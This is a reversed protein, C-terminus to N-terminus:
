NESALRNAAAQVKLLMARFDRWRRRHLQRDNMGDARFFPFLGAFESDTPDMFKGPRVRLSDLSVVKFKEQNALLGEGTAVLSNEVDYSAGRILVLEGRSNKIDQLALMSKDGHYKVAGVVGHGNLVVFMVQGVAHHSNDGILLSRLWSQAHFRECEYCFDTYNMLEDRYVRVISDSTAVNKLVRKDIWDDLILSERSTLPSAEGYINLRSIFQLSPHSYESEDSFGNGGRDTHTHTAFYDLYKADRRAHKGELYREFPPASLKWDCLDAAFASGSLFFLLAFVLKMNTAFVSKISCLM